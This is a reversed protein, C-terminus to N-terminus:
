RADMVIALTIAAGFIVILSCSWCYGHWARAELAFGALALRVFSRIQYRYSRHLGRFPQWGEFDLDNIKHAVFVSANLAPYFALRLAVAAHLDWSKAVETLQFAM